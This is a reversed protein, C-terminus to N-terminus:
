PLRSPSRVPRANLTNGPRSARALTSDKDDAAEQVRRRAASLGRGALAHALLQDDRFLGGDCLVDGTRQAAEGLLLVVVLGVVVHQRRGDAVKELKGHGLFELDLAAF